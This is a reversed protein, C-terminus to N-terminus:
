IGFIKRGSREEHDNRISFKPPGFIVKEGLYIMAIKYYFNAFKVFVDAEESRLMMRCDAVAFDLFSKFKKLKPQYLLYLAGVSLVVSTEFISDTVAELSMRENKRYSRYFGVFYYNYTNLVLLDHLSKYDSSCENSSGEKRIKKSYHIRKKIVNPMCHVIKQCPCTKQKEEYIYKKRIYIKWNTITSTISCPNPIQRNYDNDLQQQQKGGGFNSRRHHPPTVNAQTPAPAYKNKYNGNSLQFVRAMKSMTTDYKSDTIIEMENGLDDLMRYLAIFFSFFFFIAYYYIAFTYERQLLPCVSVSTARGSGAVRDAELRDQTHGYQRELAHAEEARRPDHRAASLESQVHRGAPVDPAPQEHRRRRAGDPAQQVQGPRSQSGPAAGQDADGHQGHRQREDHGAARPTPPRPGNPHVSRTRYLQGLCRNYWRSLFTLLEKM